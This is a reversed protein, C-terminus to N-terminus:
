VQESLGFCRQTTASGEQRSSRRRELTGLGRAEEHFRVPPKPSNDTYRILAGLPATDLISTASM